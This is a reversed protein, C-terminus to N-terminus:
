HQKECRDVEFQGGKWRKLAGAYYSQFQLDCLFVSELRMKNKRCTEFESSVGNM